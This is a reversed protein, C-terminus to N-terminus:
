FFRAISGLLGNTASQRRQLDNNFQSLRQSYSNQAFQNYLSAASLPSGLGQMFQQQQGNLSYGLASLENLKKAQEQDDLDKRYISGSRQIELMAPNRVNKQLDELKDFYPTAKLTGFRAGIDERLNKMSKNYETDFMGTQQAIYDDRMQDYRQGMEPATQGLTPLLQNVRQESIRRREIEEPSEFYQTKITGGDMYTRGVVRNGILVDSPTFAPPQPASSSKSKKRSM